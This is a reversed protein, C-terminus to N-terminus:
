DTLQSFFSGTARQVFGEKKKMFMTVCLVALVVVLVFLFLVLNDTNAGFQNCIKSTANKKIADLQGQLQQIQQTAAAM